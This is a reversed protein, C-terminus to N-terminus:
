IFRAVSVDFIEALHKATAKSIAKRGNEMDSIFQKTTGLKKALVLQTMGALKRYFRMNKGPTDENELAKFWEMDMANVLDDREIKVNYHFKM